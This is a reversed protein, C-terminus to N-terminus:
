PLLSLLLSTGFSFTPPTLRGGALQALARGVVDGGLILLVSFVDGPHTWQEFFEASPIGPDFTLSRPFAKRYFPPMSSTVKQTAAYKGLMSHKLNVEIERRTALVSRSSQRCDESM